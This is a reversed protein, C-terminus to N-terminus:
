QATVTMKYVDMWTAGEDQSIAMVWDFGEDTPPTFTIRRLHGFDPKQYHMEISGDDRETATLHSMAESGEGTFVVDWQEAAADYMRVTMGYGGAAPHFMDVIAAGDGLCRFNWTGGQGQTWSGDATIQSDQFTYDGLYRGFSAKGGEQCKAAQAATDPKAPNAFPNDGSQAVLPTALMAIVAATLRAIHYM